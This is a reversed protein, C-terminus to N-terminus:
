TAPGGGTGGLVAAVLDAAADEDTGLDTSGGVLSVVFARHFCAGLLLAAAAHPKTGAPFRGLQQEEALHRGLVAVPVHPGGGNGALMQRFGERLTAEALLGAILPLSRGFFRIAAVAFEELSAAPDGEGATARLRSMAPALAPMQELLVALFLEEKRSFHKYLLAESCGAARAIEKTTARAAGLERIVQDAAGIIRERTGM